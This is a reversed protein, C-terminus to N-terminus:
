GQNDWMAPRHCQPQQPTEQCPHTSRTRPGACGSVLTHPDWHGPLTLVGKRGGGREDDAAALGLGPRAPRSLTDTTKDKDKV